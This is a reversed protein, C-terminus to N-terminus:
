QKKSGLVPFFCFGFLLCSVGTGVSHNGQDTSWCKGGKKNWRSNLSLSFIYYILCFSFMQLINLFVYTLKIKRSQRCRAYM